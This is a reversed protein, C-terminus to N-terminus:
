LPFLWTTDDIVYVQDRTPVQFCKMGLRTKPNAPPDHELYDCGIKLQNTEVSAKQQTWRRDM